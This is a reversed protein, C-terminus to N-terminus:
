SSILRILYKIEPLEHKLDIENVKNLVGTLLSDQTINHDELEQIIIKILFKIAELLHIPLNAEKYLEDFKSSDLSTFAIQKIENFSINTLKALCYLFSPLDCKCLYYIVLANNLQNKAFLLDINRKILNDDEM